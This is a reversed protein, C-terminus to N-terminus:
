KYQPLLKLNYEEYVRKNQRLIEDWLGNEEGYGQWKKCKSLGDKNRLIEKEVENLIKTRNIKFPAENDEEYEIQYLMVMFAVYLQEINGKSLKLISEELLKDVGLDPNEKYAGYIGREFIIGWDTPISVNICEWEYEGKGELLECFEDNKVADKVLQVANKVM